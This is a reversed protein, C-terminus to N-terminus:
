KISEEAINGEAVADKLGQTYRKNLDEVAVDLAASIDTGEAAKAFLNTFVTNRDDGELSIFKHPEFKPIDLDDTKFSYEVGQLNLDEVGLADLDNARADNRPVPMYTNAITQNELWFTYFKKAAEVNKGNTVVWNVGGEAWYKDARDEAFVPIPAADWNCKTDIQTAYSGPMWTGDIYMGITGAAFNARLTDIGLTLYGPFLSGDRMLDVYFEFYKKNAGFDYSKTVNNWGYRQVDSTAYSIPDIVREWIQAVGLPLGFGYTEGGGAETIKQAYERMEELTQPPAEPNLGAKEFLDKNYLLRYASVRVPVSYLEGNLYFEEPTFASQNYNEQVVDTVCDEVPVLSGQKALTQVTIGGSCELIDPASDGSIAMQVVSTYNEGYYEYTVQVEEQSENFAEILKQIGEDPGSGKTWIRIETKVGGAVMSSETKNKTSAANEGSAVPTTTGDGTKSGGCGTASLVLVGAMVVAYFQKMRKM